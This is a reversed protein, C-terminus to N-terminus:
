SRRRMPVAATWGVLAMILLASAPEPVAIATGAGSGDIAGFRSRWFNYDEADVFGETAAAPNENALGFFQGINDRWVVYDAADVVNNESYDGLVSAPPAGFYKANLYSYV